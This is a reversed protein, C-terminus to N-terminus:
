RKAYLAGNKKQQQISPVGMLSQQPLGYDHSVKVPNPLSTRDSKSRNMNMNNNNNAYGSEQEVQEYYNQGPGVRQGVGQGGELQFKDTLRSPASMPNSRNSSAVRRNQGDMPHAFPPNNSVDREERYYNGVGGGGGGDNNYVSAPAKRNDVPLPRASGSGSSKTIRASPIAPLSVTEEYHPQQVRQQHQQQLQSQMQQAQGQQQRRNQFLRGESQADYNSEAHSNVSTGDEGGHQHQRGGAGAGRPNSSSRQKKKYVQLYGAGAGFGTPDIAGHAENGALPMQDILLVPSPPGAPANLGLKGKAVMGKNAHNEKLIAEQWEDVAAPVPTRRPSNSKLAKMKNLVPAANIDKAGAKFARKEKEKVPDVEKAPRKPSHAKLLAAAKDKEQQEIQALEQMKQLQIRNLEEIEALLQQEQLENM